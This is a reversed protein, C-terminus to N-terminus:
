RSNTFQRLKKELIQLDREKRYKICEPGYYEFHMSDTRFPDGWAWGGWYFNNTEFIRIWEDPFSTFPEHHGTTLNLNFVNFCGNIKNQIRDYMKYPDTTLDFGADTNFDGNKFKDLTKQYKNCYDTHNIKRSGTYEKLRIDWNSRTMIDITLGLVHTDQLINETVEGTKRKVGIRGTVSSIIGRGDNNGTLDPVKGDKYDRMYRLYGQIEVDTSALIEKSVKEWASIANINIKSTGLGNLIDIRKIDPEDGINKGDLFNKYICQAIDGSLKPPAGISGTFKGDLGLSDLDLHDGLPIWAPFPEPNVFQVKLGNFEVLNPNITYLLTYSGVLLILGTVAGAIRKKAKNITEKSDGGGSSTINGPIMWQLGAVIIMIVAFISGAAVAFKYVASIYEGLFPVVFYKSGDDDEVAKLGEGSFSLGPIKIQLQPKNLIAEIESLNNQIFSQTSTKPSVDLGIWECNNVSVKPKDKLIYTDNCSSSGPSFGLLTIDETISELVRNTESSTCTCTNIIASSNRCSSFQTNNLKTSCRSDTLPLLAGGKSKDRLRTLEVEARSESNTLPSIINTDCLCSSRDSNASCNTLLGGSTPPEFVTATRCDERKQSLETITYRGSAGEVNCACFQAPLTNRISDAVSVIGLQKIPAETNATQTIRFDPNIRYVEYDLSAKAIGFSFFLLILGIVFSFILYNKSINKM